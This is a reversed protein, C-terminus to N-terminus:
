DRSLALLYGQCADAVYVVDDAGITVGTLCRTASEPFAARPPRGYVILTADEGTAVGDRGSTVMRVATTSTVFLNGFRDVALGRPAEVPFVSAPAGEGASAATGEGIVTSVVDGAILRVRHNGTDAVYIGAPAVALATPEDFLAARAPGGDGGFGRRGAVGAVTSSAGSALDIARILHNGTDAIFLTRTVEELALGRPARLRMASPTLGDLAGPDNRRGAFDAITWTLPDDVDVVAIARVVHTGAEAVYITRTEDDWALGSADTFFRSFRAQAGPEFGPQTGDRFGAPWGTVVELAGASLRARQVRGGGATAVIIDGPPMLALAHPATLAGSAFPGVGPPDFAGIVPSVIDGPGITHVNGRADAMFLAGAILHAAPASFLHADIAPGGDISLSPSAGSVLLESAVGPRLAIVSGLDLDPVILVGDDFSIRGPSAIAPPELLRAVFGGASSYADVTGASPDAVFIDGTAEDCAVGPRKGPNYGGFLTVPGLLEADVIGQLDDSFRALTPEALEAIYFISGNCAALDSMSPPQSGIRAAGSALDVRAFSSSFNPALVVVDTGRVTTFYELVGRIGLTLEASEGSEITAVLSRAHGEGDIGVVRGLEDLVLPSGDARAGLDRAAVQASLRPGLDVGAGSGVVPVPPDALRLVGAGAVLVAGDSAIAINTLPGDQEFLATSAGSEARYAVGHPRNAVLATQTYHLAGDPGFSIDSIKAGVAPPATLLARIIGDPAVRRLRLGDAIVLGGDGDFALASVLTFSALLAPGDDGTTGALGTGAFAEIVGTSRDVRRVRRQSSDAIYINGQGDLALGAPAGFTALRADGGDGSPASASFGGTGAVTTIVGTRADVRRVRRGDIFFVNGSGDLAIEGVVELGALPAPVGEDGIPPGGSGAVVGVVGSRADLRLVKRDSAFLLNQEADLAISAVGRTPFLLPDGGGVGLGTVLTPRWGHLVCADCGDNENDNADDCEEGGDVIADGCIEVKGCDGRCGDGSENNGDDCAEVGARVIRDGCIARACANTCENDDVGDGDDCEEVGILVVGDGCVNPICDNRCEDNDIENADDCEEALAADVVGDGCRPLACDTRCADSAEDSNAAGDDCEELAADTFGDGCTSAVCAARLCIGAGPGRDCQNGDPAASAEGSGGVSVCPANPSVCLGLELLCALGSPCDSARECSIKADTPASAEFACSSLGALLATGLFFRVAGRM